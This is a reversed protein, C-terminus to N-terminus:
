NEVLVWFVNRGYMTRVEVPFSPAQMVGNIQWTSPDEAKLKQKIDKELLLNKSRLDKLKEEITLNEQEIVSGTKAAIYEISNMLLRNRLVEDESGWKNFNNPFGNILFYDKHSISVVGGFYNPDASYRTGRRALHIPVSPYMSYYKVLENDPIEDVDHLIFYDYNYYNNISKIASNLVLGRNFGTFIHGPKETQEAILIDFQLLNTNKLLIELHKERNRYPVVILGKAKKKLKFTFYLSCIQHLDMPANVANNTLESIFNENVLDNKYIYNETIMLDKFFGSERKLAFNYSKEDKESMMLVTTDVEPGYVKFFEKVISADTAMGIFYSGPELLNHIMQLFSHIDFVYNLAFNCVILRIPGTYKYKKILNTISEYSTMDGVDYTVKFMKYNSRENNPNWFCDNTNHNLRNMPTGCFPCGNIKKPSPCEYELHYGACLLCRNKIFKKTSLFDKYRNRAETVQENSIDIGIVQKIDNNFFRNRDNGRGAALDLVMTCPGSLRLENITDTILNKKLTWNTYDTYKDFFSEM